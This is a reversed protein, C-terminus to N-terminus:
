ALSDVLRELRRAERTMLEPDRFTNALLAIGPLVRGGPRPRRAPRDAPIAARGSRGAARSAPRM